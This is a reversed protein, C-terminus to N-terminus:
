KKVEQSNINYEERWINFYKIAQRIDHRENFSYDWIDGIYKDLQKAEKEGFNEYIKSKKKLKKTIKDIKDHIQRITKNTMSKRTLRLHM